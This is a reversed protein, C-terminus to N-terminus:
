LSERHLHAKIGLNLVGNEASLISEQLATLSEGERMIMGVANPNSHTVVESDWTDLYIGEWNSIGAYFDSTYAQAAEKRGTDSPNKLFEKLEGGKSFSVLVTEANGIYEEIIQTKADLSTIMNDEATKRMANTMNRNSLIFLIAICAASVLAIMCTIRNSLKKRKM